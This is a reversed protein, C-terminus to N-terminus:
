GDGDSLRVDNRNKEVLWCECIHFACVAECQVVRNSAEQLSKMIGPCVYEFTSFGPSCLFVSEIYKGVDRGCVGVCATVCVCVCVSVVDTQEDEAERRHISYLSM